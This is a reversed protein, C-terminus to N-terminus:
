ILLKLIKIARQVMKEPVPVAYKLVDRTAYVFNVLVEVFKSQFASPSRDFEFSAVHLAFNKITGLICEFWFQKYSDGCFGKMRM